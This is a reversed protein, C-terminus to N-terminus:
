QKKLRLVVPKMSSGYHLKMPLEVSYKMKDIFDCQQDPTPEEGYQCMKLVLNEIQSDKARLGGYKLADILVAVQNNYPENFLGNEIRQLVADENIGFKRKVVYDFLEVM